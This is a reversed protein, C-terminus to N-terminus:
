QHTDAIQQIAQRVEGAHFTVDVAFRVKHLDEHRFTLCLSVRRKNYLAGHMNNSSQRVTM